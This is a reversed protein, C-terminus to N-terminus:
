KIKQKYKSQHPLSSLMVKGLCGCNECPESMDRSIGLCSPCEVYELINVNTIINQIINYKDDIFNENQLRKITRSHVRGMLKEREWINFTLTEEPNRRTFIEMGSKLMKKVDEIKLFNGKM